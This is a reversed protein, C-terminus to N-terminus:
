NDKLLAAFTPRLRRNEPYSIQELADVVAAKKRDFHGRYREKVPESPPMEVEMPDIAQDNKWFSYHLHPGTALGTAGVYGIVEGQNVREGPHIGDAIDSMHLYGTTYTSNHRVKVYRGNGSSYSAAIVTGDGTTRIPTGRPAAYDTGLHPKYRKQVPHFRRRSFGSSIRSYELPAKLFAKRLSRGDTDFYDFDAGQQFRIAYFDEGRHEFYAGLINGTGVPENDVLRQEYIVKYRDGRQIGYFDIQWAYVDSMELALATPAGADELTEYLSRTIIGAVAREVTEIKRQGVSVSVPATLDFVVYSTANPEYVFYRVQQDAGPERYVRYSHGARLRRVDFVDESANRLAAIKQSSVEFEYLIDALTEGYSIEGAYAWVSDTPIGYDNYYSSQNQLAAETTASIHAIESSNQCGFVLSAALLLIGSIRYSM